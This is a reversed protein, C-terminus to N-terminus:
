VLCQYGINSAAHSFLVTNHVWTPEEELDAIVESSAGGLTAIVADEIILM